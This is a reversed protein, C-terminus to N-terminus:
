GSQKVLKVIEENEPFRGVVGKSYILDGNLRVDFIGGSGKIL